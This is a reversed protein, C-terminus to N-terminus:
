RGYRRKHPGATSRWLAGTVGIARDGILSLAHQLVRVTQRLAGAVLEGAIEM